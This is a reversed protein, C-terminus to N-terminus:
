SVCQIKKLTSLNYGIHKNEVEIGLSNLVMRIIYIHHITHEYLFLLERNTNSNIEIRSGPEILEDSVALTESSIKKLLKITLTIKERMKDKSNELEKNRNRKNYDIKKSQLGSYFCSWFDDIHRFHMSISNNHIISLKKYYLNSDIKDLMSLTDELSAKNINILHKLAKKDEM